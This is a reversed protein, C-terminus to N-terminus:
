HFVSLDIPHLQNGERVCGLCPAFRCGPYTGQRPSSGAVRKLGPSLAGVLQAVGTLTTYSEFSRWPPSEKCKGLAIMDVSM